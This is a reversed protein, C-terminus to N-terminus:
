KEMSVSMYPINRIIKHNLLYGFATKSGEGAGGEEGKRGRRQRSERRGRRRGGREQEGEVAEM